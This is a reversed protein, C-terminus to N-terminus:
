QSSDFGDAFILVGAPAVGAAYLLGGLLHARFDDDAYSADTHGMGTYWSRGGDFEHYWSIPHDAGMQGGNYTTEDLTLLVQINLADDDRPNTQFNYWEDNRQWQLPINQTSPHTNDEVLVTADQISPHNDFYSGVLLGYWPWNYETDSASHVGVYGGGNQIYAEFAAQQPGNLVDGSTLLFVVAEFGALNFANFDAADESFVVAFGQENSM